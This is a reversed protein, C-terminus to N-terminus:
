MAILHGGSCVETHNKFKVCFSNIFFKPGFAGYKFLSTESKQEIKKHGRKAIFAAYNQLDSSIESTCFDNIPAYDVNSDVHLTFVSHSYNINCMKVHM